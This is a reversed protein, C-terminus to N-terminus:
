EELMDALLARVRNIEADTHVSGGRNLKLYLRLVETRSLSVYGIQMSLPSTLGRIWAKAEKTMNAFWLEEGDTYIAPIVNKLFCYLATLRQKGDIVEDVIKPKLNFIRNCIIEPRKGGELLFGIFRGQQEATWVHDRQYDPDMEFRCTEFSGEFRALFSEDPTLTESGERFGIPQYRSKLSAIDM